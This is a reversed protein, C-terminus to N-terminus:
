TTRTMRFLIRHTDLIRQEADVRFHRAFAARFGDIDYDRFV